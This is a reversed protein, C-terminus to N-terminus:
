FSFYITSYFFLFIFFLYQLGGVGGFWFFFFWLYEFFFCVSCRFFLFLSFFCDMLRTSSSSLFSSLFFVGLNRSGFNLFFVGVVRALLVEPDM